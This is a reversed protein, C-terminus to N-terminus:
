HGAPGSTQAAESLNSWDRQVPAAYANTDPFQKIAEARYWTRTHHKESAVAMQATFATILPVVVMMLITNRM